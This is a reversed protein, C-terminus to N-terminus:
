AAVESAASRARAAKPPGQGGSGQSPPAEPLAGEAEQDPPADSPVAAEATFYMNEDEAPALEM